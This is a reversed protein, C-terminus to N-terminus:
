KNISNDTQGPLADGGTGIQNTGPIEPESNPLASQERASLGPTVFVNEGYYKDYANALAKSGTLVLPKSQTQAVFRRSARAFGMLLNGPLNEGVSIEFVHNLKSGDLSVADFEVFTMGVGVSAVPMDYPTTQEGENTVVVSGNNSKWRISNERLPVSSEILLRGAEGLKLYLKTNVDSM